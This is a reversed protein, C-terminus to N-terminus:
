GGGWRARAAEMARIHRYEPAQSMWWATKQKSRAEHFEEHRQNRIQESRTAWRCNGYPPSCAPCLYGKNNDTRDLTLGDPRPGMDILFQAFSHRWHECVGIGRGGYHKWGKTSPDVSRQVMGHWVVYEPTLKGGCRHGHSIHGHSLRVSLTKQKCGCSTTHGSALNYPLVLTESGCDCRCVWLTRNRRRKPSLVSLMGYRQGTIDVLRRPM